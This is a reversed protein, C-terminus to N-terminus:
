RSKAARNKPRAFECVESSVGDGAQAFIALQTRVTRLIERAQSAIVDGTAATIKGNKVNQLTTWLEAKLSVANLDGAQEKVVRKEAM